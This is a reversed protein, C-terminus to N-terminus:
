FWSHVILDLNTEVQGVVKLIVYIDLREVKLHETVFGPLYQESNPKVNNRNSIITMTSRGTVQAAGMCIRVQPVVADPEETIYTVRTFCM